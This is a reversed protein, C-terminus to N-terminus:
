RKGVEKPGLKALVGRIMMMTRQHAQPCPCCGEGPDLAALGQQNGFDHRVTELVSLVAVAAVAEPVAAVAAM